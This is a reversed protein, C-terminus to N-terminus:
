YNHIEDIIKLGGTEVENYNYTSSKRYKKKEGDEQVKSATISMHDFHELETTLMGFQVYCDNM